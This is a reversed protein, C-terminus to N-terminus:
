LGIQIRLLGMGTRLEVSSHTGRQRGNNSKGTLSWHEFFIYKLSLKISSELVGTRPWSKAWLERLMIKLKNGTAPEQGAGCLNFINHQTPWGVAPGACPNKFIGDFL